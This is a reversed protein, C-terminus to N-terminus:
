RRMRFARAQEALDGVDGVVAREDLDLRADLTQPVDGLHVPGVLVNMGGLHHLHTVLGLDHHEIDVGLATADREAHFLALRIGPFLEGGIM